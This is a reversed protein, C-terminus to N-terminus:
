GYISLIPMFICIDEMALGEWFNGLNPNQTEFYVMQCCQLRSRLKRVFTKFQTKSFTKRERILVLNVKLLANSVFSNLRSEVTESWPSWIPRIKAWKPSQKAQATKRFNV